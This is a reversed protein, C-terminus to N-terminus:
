DAETVHSFGTQHHLTIHGAPTPEATTLKVLFLNSTLHIKETSVLLITITKRSLVTNGKLRSGWVLTIFKINKTKIKAM